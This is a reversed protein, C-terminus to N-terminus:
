KANFVSSILNETKEYSAKSGNFMKLIKRNEIIEEDTLRKSLLLPNKELEQVSFIIVDLNKYHQYFPNEERLFVTAGKFIMASINGGAQQRKHNMIVIPSSSILNLYNDYPIFEKLSNFNELFYQKGLNEIKNGYNEDGYNLPCLITSFDSKYDKLFDLIELHNNTYSASNGLLVGKKTRDIFDEQINDVLKASVGYNWKICEPFKKKLKMINSNKVMKYENELVPAFYNIRSIIDEKSVKKYILRKLINKIFVKIKSTTKNDKDFQYHEHMLKKTKSLLLDADNPYILDYYDYGMGIWVYKINSNLTHAVLQQNFSTLSHLIVMDYTEIKKLFASSRFSFRNIFKVPIKKIYKLEQPNSAIYFDNCNPAIKEFLDWAADPFKEDHIM